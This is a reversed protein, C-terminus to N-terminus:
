IHVPVGYVRANAPVATRSNGVTANQPADLNLIFTTLIFRM